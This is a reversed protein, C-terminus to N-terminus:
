ALADLLFERQAASAADFCASPHYLLGFHGGDVMIAQKPGGILAHVSLAVDPDAGPMEDERAILMLSPCRIHPAAIGAHLPAPTRPTVLTARNEWRSGFRGGYDIFWRFATLPTLLSPAHLQDASVVPLPGVTVEPEGRIDGTMLTERLAAFLAADPDPPAPARGTAPVQVVVAAVREDVGAVILAVGGSMSDGWLAIRGADVGDIESAFTVADRYGRAQMWGNIEHRPEGGSAGFSRHDYLLVTFGAGAFVEAYRDATMSVTASFGHAMVVAPSRGGSSPRYLRGRLM